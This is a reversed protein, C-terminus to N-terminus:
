PPSWDRLPGTTKRLLIESAGPIVYDELEGVVHYGLREYLRQADTNFSSVCMFVNPSRRFIYEEAYRLLRSGVGQGRHMADVCVAQIYGTFAGSMNVIVCGIVEGASTAVFVNRTPDIVATHCADYGRGIRRWPDTQSMMEACKEADTAGRLPEIVLDTM